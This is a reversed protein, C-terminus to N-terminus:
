HYSMVLHKNFYAPVFVSQQSIIEVSIISSKRLTSKVAATNKRSFSCLASILTGMQRSCLYSDGAILTLLCSLTGIQKQLSLIKVIDILKLTDTRDNSCPAGGGIIVVM